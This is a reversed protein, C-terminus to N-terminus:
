VWLEPEIDEMSWRQFLASLKAVHMPSEQLFIDILQPDVDEDFAVEVSDTSAAPISKQNQVETPSEEHLEIGMLQEAISFAHEEDIVNPWEPDQLHMMIASVSQTSKTDKIYSTLLTPWDEFLRRHYPNTRKDNDLNSLQEVNGILFSAIDKIGALGMMDSSSAVRRLYSCYDEKADQLQSFGVNPDTLVKLAEIFEQELEALETAFADLLEQDAM